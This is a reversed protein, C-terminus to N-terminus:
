LVFESEWTAADYGLTHWKCFYQPTAKTPDHEDPITRHSIVREVVKLKELEEKHRERQIKYNEEEELDGRAYSLERLIIQQNKIYNDVRKIGKYQRLFEYLEDTNHLHSYGKWKIHFRQM